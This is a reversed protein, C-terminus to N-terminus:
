SIINDENIISEKIEKCNSFLRDIETTEFIRKQQEEQVLDCASFILDKFTKVDIGSYRFIILLHEFDDVKLPLDQAKIFSNFIEQKEQHSM